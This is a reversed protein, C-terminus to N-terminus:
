AASEDDSPRGSGQPVGGPPPVGLANALRRTACELGDLQRQAREVRLAVEAAADLLRAPATPDRTPPGKPPTPGFAAM